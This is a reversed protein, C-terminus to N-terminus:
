IPFHPIAKNHILLSETTHATNHLLLNRHENPPIYRGVPHVAGESGQCLVPVSVREAMQESSGLDPDTMNGWQLFVGPSAVLEEAHCVQQGGGWRVCGCVCVVVRACVCDMLSLLM